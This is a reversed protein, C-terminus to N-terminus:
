CGWHFFNWSLWKGGEGWVCMQKNRCQPELVSSLTRSKQLPKAANLSVPEEHQAPEGSIVAGNGGGDVETSSEGQLENTLRVFTRLQFSSSVVDDAFFCGSQCHEGCFRWCSTGFCSNKTHGTLCTDTQFLWPALINESCTAISVTGMSSNLFLLLWLLHLVTGFCFSLVRRM